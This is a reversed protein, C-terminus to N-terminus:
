QVGRDVIQQLRAFANRDGDVELRELPARGWFWADLDAATGRVTFAPAHEAGDVVLTDMDYVNGTNPSTGAFRGFALSWARQRDNAEVVGTTGDPTFTSWPPLDGHMVALAEDVGDTALDPDIATPDGIVLEADVRHILAEHAQRRRVFNVSRDAAWTWVPTEGPTTTVADILAATAQEFLALLAQYDDPREPKAAEAADPDDLRERVIAGWFLQVETLHWLLDAATWDPCSPVRDSRDASALCAAFRTSERRIHEVFDVELVV